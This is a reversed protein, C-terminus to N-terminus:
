LLRVATIVGGGITATTGLSTNNYLSITYPGGATIYDIYTFSVGGSTTNLNTAALTSTGGSRNVQISTLRTSVGSYGTDLALTFIWIQDSPFTMQLNNSPSSFYGGVNLIINTDNFTSLSSNAAVNQTALQNFQFVFRDPTTVTSTYGVQNDTASDDVFHLTTPNDNKVYLFGEGANPTYQSSPSDNLIVGLKSSM